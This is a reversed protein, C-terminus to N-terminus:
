PHAKLLSNTAHTDMIDIFLLFLIAKDCNARLHQRVAKDDLRLHGTRVARSSIDAAQSFFVFGISFLFIFLNISRFIIRQFFVEIPIIFFFHAYFILRDFFILM